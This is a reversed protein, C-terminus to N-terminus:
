TTPINLSIHVCGTEPAVLTCDQGEQSWHGCASCVPEYTAAFIDPKCPYFEGKVGKIIYDGVNGTHDGELTPIVIRTSGEEYKWDVGYAEGIFENATSSKGDWCVAQIEVPKKRYTMCM